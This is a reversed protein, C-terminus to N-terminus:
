SLESFTEQVLRDLLERHRTRVENTSFRPDTGLDPRLLVRDCFRTWERENQISLVVERGDSCAFAGYPAISPHKLGVREPAAAGYRAQLYPVAM